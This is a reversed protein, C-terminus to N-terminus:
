HVAFVSYMKLRRKARLEIILTGSHPDNKPQGKNQNQFSVKDTRVPEEWRDLLQKLFSSGSSSASMSRRYGRQNAEETGESHDHEEDEQQM